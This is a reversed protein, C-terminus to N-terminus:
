VRGPAVTYNIITDGCSLAASALRAARPDHGTLTNRRPSSGESSRLSLVVGSSRMALIQAIATSAQVEQPRARGSYVLSWIGPRM